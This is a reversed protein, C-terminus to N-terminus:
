TRNAQQVNKQAEEELLQIVAPDIAHPVVLEGSTIQEDILPAYIVFGNLAVVMIRGQDQATVADLNVQGQHDFRFHVNGAPDARVDVLNQETIEPMARIMITERNPPIVVEQAESSPLGEGSTQIFVRFLVKPPSHGAHAPLVLFVLLVALCSIWRM